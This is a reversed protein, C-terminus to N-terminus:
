YLCCFLKHLQLSPFAFNLEGPVVALTVQLLLLHLICMYRFGMVRTYFDLSRKPDKIRYM